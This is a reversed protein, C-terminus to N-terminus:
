KMKRAADIVEVEQVPGVNVPLQPGLAASPMPTMERPAWQVSHLYDALTDARQESDM